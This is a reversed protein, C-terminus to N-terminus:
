NSEWKLPFLRAMLEFAKSLYDSIKWSSYDAPTHVSLVPSQSVMKVGKGWTCSSIALHCTHTSPVLLLWSTLYAVWPLGGRSCPCLCRMSQYSALGQVAGCPFKAPFLPSKWPLMPFFFPFLDWIGWFAMLGGVVISQCIGGDRGATGPAPFCLLNISCFM